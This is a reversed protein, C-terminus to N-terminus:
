NHCKLPIHTNCVVVGVGVNALSSQSLSGANKNSKVPSSAFSSYKEVLDRMIQLEDEKEIIKGKRANIIYRTLSFIRLSSLMIVYFDFRM